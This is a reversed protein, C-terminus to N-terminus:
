SMEGSAEVVPSLAIMESGSSLCHEPSFMLGNAVDKFRKLSTTRMCAQVAVGVSRYSPTPFTSMPLM